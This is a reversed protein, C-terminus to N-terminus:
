RTKAAKRPAVFGPTAQPVLLVSVALGCEACHQPGSTSPTSNTARCEPCRWRAVKVAAMVVVDAAVMKTM